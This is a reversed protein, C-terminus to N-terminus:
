QKYYTVTWAFLFWLNAFCIKLYQGHCYQRFIKTLFTQVKHLLITIRSYQRCIQLQSVIEQSYRHKSPLGRLRDRDDRFVNYVCLITVEPEELPM